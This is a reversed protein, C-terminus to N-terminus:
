GRQVSNKLIFILHESLGNAYNRERKLFSKEMGM